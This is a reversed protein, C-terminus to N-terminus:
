RKKRRAGVASVAKAARSKVSHTRKSKQKVWEIVAEVNEVPTEPLIGHGLNFIHGVKGEAQELVQEVKEKLKDRPGLMAVPDLNGQIGVKGGLRRWAEKLGIRWDVGVIDSGARRMLELLAATGTGFHITPIGLPRLREFISKSYPLVFSTYDAPCLCGIWSDFLQVAQAGAKVQGQLYQITMTTLKKMLDHWSEPHYYMIMKTNVFRRSYGGEILYSAVTFPAGAFGILPIKSDLERRVLRIAEFVSVPGEEPHPVELNRIDNPTRLTNHIVPGEGKSFDFDIGMSQLPLLIDAFIIAADLDLRRIPQLTVRAALEPTRCIELLSYRERVRRYEEMYRGAQRMFWVPTCDVPERRCARLFRSDNVGKM